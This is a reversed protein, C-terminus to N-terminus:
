QVCLFQLNFYPLQKDHARIRVELSRAVSLPYYSVHCKGYIRQRQNEQFFITVQLFFRAESSFANVLRSVEGLRLWGIIDFGLEGEPASTNDKPEEDVIQIVAGPFINRM